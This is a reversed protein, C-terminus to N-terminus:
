RWHGVAKQLQAQAVRSEYAAVIARLAADARDTEAELYRTVSATGGRYQRGLRLAEDAAAAGAEAVKLRQLAEEVDYLRASKM